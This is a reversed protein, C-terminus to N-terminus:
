KKGGISKRISSKPPTPPTKDSPKYTPVTPTALTEPLLDTEPLGTKRVFFFLGFAVLLLLSGSAAFSIKEGVYYATPEYVMELTHQGAPVKMARVVYNAKVFPNAEKGDILVKWGKDTPYYVESFVAIQESKTNLSYTLRDPHYKTLNLTATSDYQPPTTAGIKDANQKQMVVTTRPDITGIAELEEDPSNVTKVEKVFWANGLAMPNKVFGNADDSKIIYKANLMGYLRMVQEESTKPNLFYKDIMEQYIRMKAAHYGGVSKHFLSTSANQFPDNGRFDLVRYHPDKDEQVKLDVPKPTQEKALTQAVEFKDASMVRKSVMWVDGLILVGVITVALWAQKISGKLTAFLTGAALLILMLSRMADSRSLDARDTHLMPLIDKPLNSDIKGSVDGGVMGILCFLSMVGASILLAKQKETNEIEKSFWAQLGLMALAVVMLQGLGLAQTVARFKNFLPFVDYMITAFFFNDGWAIMLMLLAAIAILWKERTKVLTIGLVTLFMLIAGYYISVGVFPQSGYYFLSSAQRSATKKIEAPPINPNQALQQAISGYVAKYTKTDEHNESAGGGYFRPVLLTMTESLGLSWGFVYGKSLGGDTNLNQSVSNKLDSAGRTSFKQYEYTTWLSTANSGVALAAGVLLGMTGKSFDGWNKQRIAAVLEVSGLVVLIFFTYYTIQYHNAYLQLAFFLAFLTSGLLWKGRFAMIAAGIIAPAFGLAVMKTSHGAEIIDMNYNSLGFGLAGILALRWDVSLVLLLFYAAIMALFVNTHPTTLGQGLLSVGFVPQILNGNIEQYIQATPMGSFYANTWLVPKGTEKKFKLMEAQSAVAKENDPQQLVKGEFAAPAFFVFATVLMLVVAIVHPVIKKLNM